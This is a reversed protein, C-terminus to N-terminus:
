GVERTQFLAIALSLLAGTYLLGYAIATGAYALSVSNGQTLADTIWFPQLNGTVRYLINALTHTEAFRGFVYNSVLGLLFFATCILLTMIQGLRTSAALAVGSIMLIAVYILALAILLSPLSGAGSKTAFDSGFSQFEWHRGIFGVLVFGVSMLPVTLRLFTSSFHWRYLYNGLGAVLLATGVALFGFVLVPGDFPQGTSQIVRHRVTLIFILSSLYYAMLLAGNLGLFKGMLFTARSIPKSVITLVTRDEIEGSITGSACFAAALLGSLLLTSLGLDLLLKTDDDLSFASLAVNLLLMMWTLFVVVAYIPQRLTETFTTQAVAFLKAFM